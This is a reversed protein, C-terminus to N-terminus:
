SWRRRPALVAMLAGGAGGNTPPRWWTILPQDHIDALHLRPVLRLAHYAACVNSAALVALTGTAYETTSDDDARADCLSLRRTNAWRVDRLIRRCKGNVRALFDVDDEYPRGTGTDKTVPRAFLDARVLTYRDTVWPRGRRDTIRIIWTPDVLLADRRLKAPRPRTSM